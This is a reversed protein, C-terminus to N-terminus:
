WAADEDERGGTGKACNAALDPSHISGLNLNRLNATTRTSTRRGRGRDPNKKITIRIRLGLRQETRRTLQRENATERGDWGLSIAPAFRSGMSSILKWCRRVKCRQARKM